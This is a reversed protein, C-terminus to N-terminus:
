RTAAVKEMTPELARELLVLFQANITRREKAAQALIADRIERPIRLCVKADNSAM